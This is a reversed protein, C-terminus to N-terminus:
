TGKTRASLFRQYLFSTLIAIIAVTIFAGIRYLQSLRDLDHLFLKLLAISLLGIAALRLPRLNRFIGVVLLAFAFIAWSITYAMDRAFNGSFSFTLTPGISFYDAIEINMLLFCLIAGLSYLLAPANQEYPKERPEGFWRAGLFFCFAATGYVYLYWNFIPVASRPHYELVAPNLALRVFAACFVIIAAARLRRNPIWRYLLLLGVGEIAWGISIWEREFQVPFILSLFFVISAGQTALRSDASALSIQKRRTLYFVGVAAPLAFAVPLLSKWNSPFRTLVLEYVFWFQLPGAVAAIVWPWLRDPGCAYPVAAFLLFLAVYWVLVFFPQDSGFMREHWVWEALWTLVLGGAVIIALENSRRTAARTGVGLAILGANGFLLIPFIFDARYRQQNWIFICFVLAAFGAIATAITSWYEPERDRRGAICIALFQAEIGLFIIRAAETRAPGFFDATWAFETVVSGIAGLVVLYNWRKLLSVGAIGCNLVGIYGFLAFPNDRQTWLMAPTLFGGAVGLWAVSQADLRTALALAAATVLWMLVFAATLSILHYFSYAAYANAYLILVGTACLSHAPIRYRRVGPLAGIIILAAGVVTGIVVRMGPTVLNNEFAYKVFFVIGLFFAFGGIWAFFKVGLVSEWNFPAPTPQTVARPEAPVTLPPPKLFAPLPPPAVSRASSSQAPRDASKTELQSVRRKLEDISSRLKGFQAAIVISIVLLALFLIIALLLM